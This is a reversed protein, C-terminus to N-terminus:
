TSLCGTLTAALVAAQLASISTNSAAPLVRLLVVLVDLGGGAGVLELLHLPRRALGVEVRGLADLGEEHLGLQGVGPGEDVHAVPSNVRGSQGTM